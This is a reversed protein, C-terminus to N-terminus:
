RREIGRLAVVRGIEDVGRHALEVAIEFVVFRHALRQLRRLEIRHAAGKAEIGVLVRDLVVVHAGDAAVALAAEDVLREALRDQLVVAVGVHLVALHLGSTPWPRNPTGPVRTRSCARLPRCNPRISNRSAAPKVSTKPTMSM